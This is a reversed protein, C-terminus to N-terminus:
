SAIEETLRGEITADFVYRNVKGRLGTEGVFVAWVTAAYEHHDEGRIQWPSITDWFEISIPEYEPRVKLVLRHHDNRTSIKMLETNNGAVTTRMSSDVPHAFFYLRVGGLDKYEQDSKMKAM